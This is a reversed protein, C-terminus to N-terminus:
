LLSRLRQLSLALDKVGQAVRSSGRVWNKSRSKPKMKEVQLLHLPEWALILGLWMQSRGLLECCHWIGSGSLLALSRVRMRM